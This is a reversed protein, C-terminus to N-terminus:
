FGTSRVRDFQGYDIFNSKGTQLDFERILTRCFWVLVTNELVQLQVNEGIFARSVFYIHGQLSIGGNEGVKRVQEPNPYEWPKPEGVFCRSSPRWRQAPVDM